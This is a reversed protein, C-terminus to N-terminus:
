GAPFLTKTRHPQTRPPAIDSCGDHCGSGGSSATRVVVLRPGTVAGLGAARGRGALRDRIVSTRGASRSLQMARVVRSSNPAVVERVSELPAPDEYLRVGIRCSVIRFQNSGFVHCVLQWNLKWCLV